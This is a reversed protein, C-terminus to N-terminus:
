GTEVEGAVEGDETWDETQPQVRLVSNLRLLDPTWWNKLVDIINTGDANYDDGRVM